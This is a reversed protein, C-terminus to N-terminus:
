YSQNSLCYRLLTCFYTRFIFSHLHVSGYRVQILQGHLVSCLHWVLSTYLLFRGTAWNIRKQRSRMLNVLRNFFLVATDTVVSFAALIAVFDYGFTAASLVGSIFFPSTPLAYFGILVMAAVPLLALDVGVERLKVQSISFNLGAISFAWVKPLFNAGYQLRDLPQKAIRILNIGFLRLCFYNYIADEQPEPVNVMLRVPGFSIWAALLRKFINGRNPQNISDELNDLVLRICSKAYEFSETNNGRSWLSEVAQTLADLGTCGALYAPMSRILSSDAIVINPKLHHNTLSHKSNEIYVVSFSTEESGTGATTPMAILPVSPELFDKSKGVILAEPSVSQYALFNIAKAVDITTGGGLAVVVDPKFKHYKDIGKLIDKYKPNVEFDEFLFFDRPLIINQIEQKFIKFVDSSAVLFVRCAKLRSIVKSLPKIGQNLFVTQM